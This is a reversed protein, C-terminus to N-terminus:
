GLEAHEPSEKELVTFGHLSRGIEHRVAFFLNHHLLAVYTRM